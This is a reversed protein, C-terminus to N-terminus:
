PSGIPDACANGDSNCDAHFLREYIDPCNKRIFRMLMAVAEDPDDTEFRWLLRGRRSVKVRILGNEELNRENM